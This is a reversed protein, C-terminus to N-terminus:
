FSQNGCASSRFSPFGLSLSNRKGSIRGKQQLIKEGMSPMSKNDVLAYCKTAVFGVDGLQKFLRRKWKKMSCHLLLSSGPVFM